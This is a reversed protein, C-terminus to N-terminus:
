QFKHSRIELNASRSSSTIKNLACSPKSDVSDGKSSINIDVVLKSNLECGNSYDVECVNHTELHSTTVYGTLTRM